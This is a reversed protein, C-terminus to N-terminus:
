WRRASLALGARYLSIGLAALILGNALVLLALLRLARPSLVVAPAVRHIRAQNGASRRLRKRLAARLRVPFSVKQESLSNMEM